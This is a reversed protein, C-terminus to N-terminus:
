AYLDEATQPSSNVSKSGYSYGVNVPSDIFIVNASETWSYPNYTTNKGQDAITCPGNEFLLGTFSSCGPGGNLWIVLDDTQTLALSAPQTLICCFPRRIPRSVKPNGRSEFFYYFIHADDAIDLYGAYSNTSTDCLKPERMRISYQPFDEHTILEVSPRPHSYSILAPPPPRTSLGM